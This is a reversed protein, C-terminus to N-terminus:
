IYRGIQSFSRKKSSVGSDFGKLLQGLPLTGEAFSELEQSSDSRRRRDCDRSGRSLSVSNSDCSLAASNLAPDLRTKIIGFVINEAQQIMLPNQSGGFNEFPEKLLDVLCQCSMRQFSLSAM